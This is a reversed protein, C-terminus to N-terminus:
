WTFKQDSWQKNKFLPHIADLANERYSVTVAMLTQKCYTLIYTFYINCDVNFVKIPSASSLFDIVFCIKYNRDSAEPPKTSELPFWM